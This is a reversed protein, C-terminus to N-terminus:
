KLLCAANLELLSQELTRIAQKKYKKTNRSKRMSNQTNIIKYVYKTFYFSFNFFYYYYYLTDSFLALAVFNINTKLLMIKYKKNNEQVTVDCSEKFIQNKFLISSFLFFFTSNREADSLANHSSHSQFSNENKCYLHCTSVFVKFKKHNTVHMLVGVM